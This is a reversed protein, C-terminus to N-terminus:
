ITIIKQDEKLIETLREGWYEVEIGLNLLQDTVNLQDACAKCASFRVGAQRAIKIREQVSANEAALGAPAGWLIVTVSKWWSNLMSNTAYMLVMKQSTIPDANTWLIYLQDKM